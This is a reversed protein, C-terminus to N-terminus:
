ETEVEWRLAEVEAMWYDADTITEDVRDEYDRQRALRLALKQIEAMAQLYHPVREM